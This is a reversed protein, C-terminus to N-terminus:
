FKFSASVQFVASVIAYAIFAVFGFAALLVGSSMVQTFVRIQRTLEGQYTSGISRLSPALQGTSEGVSLRDIVLPPFCGTKAFSQSLSEGELVRGTADHFANQLARNAVTRETMRLAEATTVGNELLVALTQSLNHITASIVFRQALPARLLWTDITLRGAATHRWRWIFVGVVAVVAVAIVGYHLLFGSLGVLVRTAWPLHGGLSTLLTQLRPLLFFVFFLIVGIAVLCIFVPYALATTIARRMELQTTYHQILRELVEHLNGTAEGAAILNVTHAAFVTPLAEMAQSLPLGGSLKEWLAACLAKQRPEQLRQSLLRVAEGAPLGSGILDSLSQLFPLQLESSFERSTGTAFLSRLAGAASGATGTPAAAATTGAGGAEQISLPQLSRASLLRAAEKRSAADLTATVTQGDAARATYAFRPM